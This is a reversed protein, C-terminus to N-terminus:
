EVFRILFQVRFQLTLTLEAYLKTFGRLYALCLAPEANGSCVLEDAHTRVIHITDVDFHM